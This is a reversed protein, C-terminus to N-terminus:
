LRKLTSSFMWLKFCCRVSALAFVELLNDDSLVRTLTSLLKDSDRKTQHADSEDLFRVRNMPFDGSRGNSVLRGRGWGEPDFSLVQEKKTM